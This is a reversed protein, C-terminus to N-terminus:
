INKNDQSQSSQKPPFVEGNGDGVSKSKSGWLLGWKVIFKIGKGKLLYSFSVYGMALEIRKWENELWDYFFM